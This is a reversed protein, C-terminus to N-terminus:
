LLAEKSNQNDFIKGEITNRSKAKLPPLMVKQSKPIQDEMKKEEENMKIKNKNNSEEDGENSDKMTAKLEMELGKIQAISPLNAKRITNGIEEAVKKIDALDVFDELDTKENKQPTEKEDIPVIKNKTLPQNEDSVALKAKMIIEKKLDTMYRVALYIIDLIVMLVWLALMDGYFGVLNNLSSFHPAQISSNFYNTSCQYNLIDKLWNLENEVQTYCVIILPFLSFRFFKDLILTSTKLVKADARKEPGMFYRKLIDIVPLIIGSIMLSVVTVIILGIQFTTDSNLSFFDVAQGLNYDSSTRCFYSWYQYSRSGLFTSYENTPNPYSPIADLSDTLNNITLFDFQGMEDVIEFDQDIAPCDFDNNTISYLFTAQNPTFDKDHFGCFYSNTIKFYAVPFYNPNYQYYLYNSSDLAISNYQSGISNGSVILSTIPCSDKTKVCIQTEGQGCKQYDSASDCSLPMSYFTDSGYKVCLKKYNKWKNLNQSNISSSGFCNQALNDPSCNGYSALYTIEGDISIPCSCLENLGPWIFQYAFSYGSPCKTTSTVTVDTIIYNTKWVDIMDLALANSTGNKLDYFTMIASGLFYAILGTYALTLTIYLLFFFERLIKKPKTEPGQINQGEIGVKNM